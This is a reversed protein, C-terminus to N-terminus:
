KCPAMYGFTDNGGSDTSVKCQGEAQKAGGAEFGGNPARAFAATGGGSPAAAAPPCPAMYGATDNGGADTSVKCLTGAQKAGGSEYGGSPARANAATGGGSPAAAAPPCPAMYGATDNGGADTSVKCMGSVQKSGGPQYQAVAVTSILGSVAIAVAATLIHRM